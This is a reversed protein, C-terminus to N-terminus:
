RKVCVLGKLYCGEPFASSVLHDSDQELRQIYALACNADLAADAVIKNFLDQSVLGSCSFTLLVGNPKLLECALRNIDKYGRAARELHRKNEVFKPPDMVILDFKTDQAKYDRLLEFVDQKLHTVNQAIRSDFNHAINRKSTELASDSVDVNTVHAAGHKLAYLAFTGTYSFCNLVHKGSGDDHPACYEGAIMRNKRQDLYFGTKHGAILDVEIKLGNEHISVQEPLTGIHTNIVPELGEKKRVEVDSREHIVHNPFLSVLADVIKSKHKEAGASLLQMVIVNAYKDITIGPLGDSEAAVVRFADTDSKTLWTQRVKLANAIKAKFFNNDIAESQDFSWVRVRIQSNPSYAGKALFEGSSSIIDVTAGSHLKGSSSAIAGEFVWPHRRKLSKEREPKLIVQAM